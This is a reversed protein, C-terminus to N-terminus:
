LLPGGTVLNFNNGEEGLNFNNGEEWVPTEGLLDDMTFLDRGDDVFLDPYIEPLYFDLDDMQPYPLEYNPHVDMQPYPLEYNPHVTSSSGQEQHCTGEKKQRKSKPKRPQPISKRKKDNVVRTNSGKRPNKRLSCLVLDSDDDLQFEQMLWADNHSEDCGGEYRFDRKLGIVVGDDEVERSYQGSWTGSGVKRDFRKATPSLRRRHTFFYLTNEDEVKKSEGGGYIQWVVWPEKDGYFHPCDAVFDTRFQDGMAIRTRLYYDLLEQDTPLFRVGVPLKNSLIAM